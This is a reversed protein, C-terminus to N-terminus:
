GGSRPPLTRQTPRVQVARRLLHPRDIDGIPIAIDPLDVRPRGDGVVGIITREEGESLHVQRGLQEIRATVNAIERTTAGQRMVVIMGTDSKAM